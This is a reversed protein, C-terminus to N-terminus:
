WGSSKAASRTGGKIGSTRPNSLTPVSALLTFARTKLKSPSDPWPPLIHELIAHQSNRLSNSLYSALRRIRRSANGIVLAQRRHLNNLLHVRIDISETYKVGVCETNLSSTIGLIQDSLTDRGVGLIVYSYITCLICFARVCSYHGHM